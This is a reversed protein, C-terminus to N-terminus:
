SSQLLGLSSRNLGQGIGHRWAILEQAARNMTYYRRLAGPIFHLRAEPETVPLRRWLTKAKAIVGGHSWADRTRGDSEVMSFNQLLCVGCLLLSVYAYRFVGSISAPRGREQSNGLDSQPTLSLTSDSLM